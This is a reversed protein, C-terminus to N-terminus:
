MNILDTFDKCTIKLDDLTLQGTCAVVDEMFPTQPCPFFDNLCDEEEDDESSINQLGNSSIYEVNPHTYPKPDHQDPASKDKHSHMLKDQNLYRDASPSQSFSHPSRILEAESATSGPSGNTLAAELDEQIEVTSHEETNHEASVKFKYEPLLQGKAICEKAWISNAPDPISNYIMRFCMTVRWKVTPTRCLCALLLTFSAFLGTLILVMEMSKENKKFDIFIHNTPGAPGEEANAWATMWLDYEGPLLEDTTYEKLYPHVPGFQKESSRSERSKLYITYSTVCVGDHKWRVTVTANDWNEVNTKPGQTPVPPWSCIHRFDGKGVGHAYLAYVAGSYCTQYTVDKVVMRLDGPAVRRWRLDQSRADTPFWEVLYGLLPQATNPKQWSIALGQESIPQCVVNKPSPEVTVLPLAIRAVPSHGKSNYASVTIDCHSCRIPGISLGTTALETSKRTLQDMVMVKYHLIAGRADSVSLEKWLIWYLKEQSHLNSETYWVDMEKLPVEEDTRAAVINSWESWVGKESDLKNRTQFEYQTFPELDSVNLNGSTNGTTSNIIRTKKDTRCKVQLLHATEKVKWHIVCSYSLCHAQTIEPAPPKAINSLTFYLSDSSVNGFKNSTTAWVTYQSHSGFTPLSAFATGNMTYQPPLKLTNNLASTKMLIYSLTKVYTDRGTKWTCTINENIGVQVCTLDQPKDPAYGVTLYFGCPVLCCDCKCAFEYSTKRARINEIKSFITTSNYNVPQLSAQDLYMNRKCKVNDFVCYVAFSSGPHVATGVTSFAVCMKGATEAGTGCLLIMLAFASGTSFQPLM